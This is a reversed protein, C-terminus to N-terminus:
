PIIKVFKHEIMDQLERLLVQEQKDIIGDEIALYIIKDYEAKTIVHDDIAKLITDKLYQSKENHLM